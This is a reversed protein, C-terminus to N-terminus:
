RLQFLRLMCSILHTPKPTWTMFYCGSFVTKTNLFFFFFLLMAAKCFDLHVNLGRFFLDSSAPALSTEGLHCSPSSKFSVPVPNLHSGLRKQTVGSQTNNYIMVTYLCPRLPTITNSLSTPAAFRKSIRTPGDASCFTLWLHLFSLALTSCWSSDPQVRSSGCCFFFRGATCAMLLYRM